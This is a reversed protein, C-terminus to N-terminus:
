PQTQNLTDNITESGSQISKLTVTSKIPVNVGIKKNDGYYGFAKHSPFLFTITEGAKMLKLGERLGTFLNEKDIVYARTDIEETTYIPTGDLHQINYNFVVRDGFGPTITDHIKKTRYYYWFGNNSTLYNNLTDKEIIKQILGEEYAVLKKNHEISQDIFSETTQSVPRRADPTKCSVLLLVMLLLLCKKM